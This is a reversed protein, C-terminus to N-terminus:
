RDLCMSLLDFSGMMWRCGVIKRLLGSNVVSVVCEIVVLLVSCMGKLELWVDGIVVVLMVVMVM